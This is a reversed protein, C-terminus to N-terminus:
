GRDGDPACLSLLNLPVQATFGGVRSAEWRLGSAGRCRVGEETLHLHSSSEERGCLKFGTPLEHAESCPIRLRFVTPM